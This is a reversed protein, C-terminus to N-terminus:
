AAGRCACGCQGASGARRRPAFLALLLAKVGVPGRRYVRLVATMWAWCLVPVVLGFLLKLLALVLENDMGAFRLPEEVLGFVYFHMLFIVFVSQAVLLIPRAVYYPLSVSRWWILPLMIVPFWFARSAGYNAETPLYVIAACGVLVASMLLKRTVSMGSNRGMAWIWWGFTFNWVIMHPLHDELYPDHWFPYSLLALVLATLLAISTTVVPAKRIRPTLDFLWFILALGLLMQAMAQPYWIPFLALKNPRIWNSFLALESVYRFLTVERAGIALIITDWVLAVALCPLVLRLGFRKFARLTDQTSGTFSYAAMSMGSIAIMVNLGGHLATMGFLAQSLKAHNAVMLIMALAKALMVTEVPRNRPEAM